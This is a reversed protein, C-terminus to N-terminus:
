STLTFKLIFVTIPIHVKIDHLNSNLIPTYPSQACGTYKLKTVEQADKIKAEDNSKVAVELEEVATTMKNLLKELMCKKDPDTANRATESFLELVSKADDLNKKLSHGESTYKDYLYNQRARKIIKDDIDTINMVYMVDYGFYNSLVRRLIDFSIYSRFFLLFMMLLVVRRKIVTM